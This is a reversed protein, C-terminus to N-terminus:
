TASAVELEDSVQEETKDDLGEEEVVVEWNMLEEKLVELSRVLGEREEKLTENDVQHADTEAKIDLIISKMKDVPPEMAVIKANNADLIAQKNDLAATQEAVINRKMETVSKLRENLQKMDEALKFKKWNDDLASKEKSNERDTNHVLDKLSCMIPKISALRATYDKIINNHEIQSKAHNSRM